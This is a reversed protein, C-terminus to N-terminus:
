SENRAGVERLKDNGRLRSDLLADKLVRQM